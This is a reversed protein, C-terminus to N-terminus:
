DPDLDQAERDNSSARTKRCTGRACKKKNLLGAPWPGMSQNEGQDDQIGWDNKQGHRGTM